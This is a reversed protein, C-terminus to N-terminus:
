LAEGNVKEIPKGYRDLTIGDWETGYMVICSVGSPNTLLVTWNGVSNAFAEMIIVGGYQGGFQYFEGYKVALEELALDHPACRPSITFEQGIDVFITDPVPPVNQYLEPDGEARALGNLVVGLLMAALYTAFVKIM